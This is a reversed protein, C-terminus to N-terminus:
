TFMMMVTCTQAAESRLDVFPLTMRIEDIVPIINIFMDIHHTYKCTYTHMDIYRNIYMHIYIHIYAYTHIYSYIHVYTYM